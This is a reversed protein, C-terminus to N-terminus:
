DMVEKSSKAYRLKQGQQNFRYGVRTPKNNKPDVLAINSRHISAEKEDIGGPTDVAPKNHRKVMQVGQVFVRNEKPMVRLVEGIKGRDKGSIVIVRDGKKISM